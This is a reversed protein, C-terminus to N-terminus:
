FKPSQTPEKKQSASGARERVPLGRKATLEMARAIPVRVKGQAEDVWSYHEMLLEERAHIEDIDGARVGSPAAEQDLSQTLEVLRERLVANQEADAIHASLRQSPHSAEQKSGRLASVAGMVLLGAAAAIVGAAIVPVRWRAAGHQEQSSKHPLM